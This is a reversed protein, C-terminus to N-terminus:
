RPAWGARRPIRTPTPWGCRCRAPSTARGAPLRVVQVRWASTSGEVTYPTGADAHQQLQALSGLDPDPREGSAGTDLLRGDADFRYVRFDPGFATSFRPRTEIQEPPLFRARSLNRELQQDVRRVLYSHLLTMGALDVALLGLAAVIRSRVTWQRLPRILRSMRGGGRM